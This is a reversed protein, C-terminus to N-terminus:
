GATIKAAPSWDSAMEPDSELRVRARFALEQGRKAEFKGKLERTGELADRFGRGKKARQVDFVQGEPLEETAWKAAVGGRRARLAVPAEVRGTMQPHIDCLYDFGGAAFTWEVAEGPGFGMSGPIGYSGTLDFLRHDETVTHPVFEDTNTWRVTDGVAVTLAPPEFSLGGSFPNGNATAEHTTAAQAPAASLAAACVVATITRGRMGMAGFIVSAM